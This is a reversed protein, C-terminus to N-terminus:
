GAEADVERRSARVDLHPRGGLGDAVAGNNALLQDITATM